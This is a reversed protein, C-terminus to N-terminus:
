VIEDLLVGNVVNVQELLVKVEEPLGPWIEEPARYGFLFSLLEAPRVKLRPVETGSDEGGEAEEVIDEEMADEEAVAGAAEEELAEAEEAAEGMGWLFCGNNEELVPDEVELLLYWGDEEMEDMGSGGTKLDFVSLLAPLDTLRAMNWPKEGTKVTYADEAYLLRQEQKELGWVAQLGVLRGSAYLFDMHGGESALEKLLRSVYAADRRTYMEYRASLWQEMYAAATECDESVDRCERRCLGNTGNFEAGAKLEYQPLNGIFAFGMGGYMEALEPNAPVLYTVPKGESAEQHLLKEFLERVHGKRREAPDTAVAVLYDLTWEQEQMRLQYPNLHVMSLVKGDASAPDVDVSNQREDDARKVAELKQKVLIRNEKTKERYYYEVFSDSDETFCTKWLPVTAKKEEGELFCILDTRQKVLYKRAFDAPMYSMKAKRLGELGLDDERNVWAAEPFEELLFQQNIYQYLGNVEPNAKEIHIVAMDEVPNYSGITFAELKEDIYVGGMRVYLDSCNKLIDHIGRVEYDLHEEVDEGKQQRWKDLFQWVDFSDSCCLRRYEYRGEYAKKFANVRNKKKHLKKGPLNRLANGEYLYDKADPQEEVLYREEPLNLYQVAYEDALHIVLPRGLTENFYREIADFAGPLDEERCLPMASFYEGDNKMLWVVAKGEWIAYQVHYFEKWIFSELFVSDCTKNHRMSYYPMMEGLKEATIEQFQLDM